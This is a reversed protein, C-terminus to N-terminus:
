KDLLELKKDPDGIDAQTASFAVNMTIVLLFLASCRWKCMTALERLWHWM